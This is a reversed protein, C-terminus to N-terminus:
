NEDYKRRHNERNSAVFLIFVCELMILMGIIQGKVEFIMLVFMIVLVIKKSFYRNVTKVLIIYQSLFLLVEGVIGFYLINRMYGADTSMYYSGDWNTYLGDGLIFQSFELSFYMKNFLTDLSGSDNMPSVSSQGLIQFIQAIYKNRYLFDSIMDEFFTYGLFLVGVLILIIFVLKLIFSKMDKLSQFFNKLLIYIFIFIGLLSIRAATIAGFILCCVYFLKMYIKKNWENWYFGLLVFLIGYTAGLGFFGSGAIALGRFGGYQNDRLSIASDGRFIDTATMFSPSVFSFIQIISQAFFVNILLDMVNVNYMKLLAVLLMGIQINILLHVVVELFSYDNSSNIFVMALGWIIVPVATSIIVINTKSLLINKVEKLYRYNLLAYFLLLFGCILTSKSFVVGQLIEFDFIYM